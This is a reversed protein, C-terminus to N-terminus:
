LKKMMLYVTFLASTWWVWCAIFTLVAGTYGYEAYVGLSGWVAAAFLSLVLTYPVWTKM